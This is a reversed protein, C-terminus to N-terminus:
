REEIESRDFKLFITKDSPPSFQNFHIQNNTILNIVWTFKTANDVKPKYSMITTKLTEDPLLEKIVQGHFKYKTFEFMGRVFPPMVNSFNDIVGCTRLTDETIPSFVQGESINKIGCTLVLIKETTEISSEDMFEAKIGAIRKLEIKMPIFKIQEIIIPERLTIIRSDNTIDATKPLKFTIAEEQPVTKVDTKVQFNPVDTKGLSKGM